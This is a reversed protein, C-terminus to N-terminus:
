NKQARDSQLDGGVEGVEENNQLIVLNKFLLDGVEGDEENNKLIVLNKFVIAFLIFSLDL